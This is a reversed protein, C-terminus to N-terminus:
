TLSFEYTGRRGKVKDLMNPSTSDKWIYWVCGPAVYTLSTNRALGDMDSDTMIVVNTPKKAQMDEVMQKWASTGGERAASNYDTHLNSSFYLLEISCKGRKEFEGLVAVAAREAEIDSRNFSGSCDMYVRLTPKEGPKKQTDM